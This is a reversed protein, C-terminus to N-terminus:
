CAGEGGKTREGWYNLYFRSADNEGLCAKSLTM